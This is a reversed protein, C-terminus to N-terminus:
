TDRMVRRAGYLKYSSHMLNRSCHIAHYPVLYTCRVHTRASCGDFLMPSIAARKIKNNNSRRVTPDYLAAHQRAHLRMFTFKALVPPASLSLGPGDTRLEKVKWWSIQTHTHAANDPQVEFAIINRIQNGFLWLRLHLYKTESDVGGGGSGAAGDDDDEDDGTAQKNGNTRMEATKPMKLYSWRRRRRRQPLKRHIITLSCRSHLNCGSVAVTSDSVLKHVSTHTALMCRDNPQIYNIPLLSDNDGDAHQTRHVVAWNLEVRKQRLIIENLGNRQRPSMLISRFAVNSSLGNMWECQIMSKIPIFLQACLFGHIHTLCCIRCIREVLLELVDVLFKCMRPCQAISKSLSFHRTSVCSCRCGDLRCRLYIPIIQLKCFVKVNCDGCPADLWEHESDSNFSSLDNWLVVSAIFLINHTQRRCTEELQCRHSARRHLWKQQNKNNRCRLPAITAAVSATSAIVQPTHDPSSHSISRFCSFRSAYVYIHSNGFDGGDRPCFSRTM